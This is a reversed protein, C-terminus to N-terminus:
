REHTRGIDNRRKWKGANDHDLYKTKIPEFQHKRSHEGLMLWAMAEDERTWPKFIRVKKM